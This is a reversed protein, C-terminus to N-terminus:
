DLWIVRAMQIHAYDILLEAAGGGPSKAECVMYYSNADTVNVLQVAGSVFSLELRLEKKERKARAVVNMIGGKISM